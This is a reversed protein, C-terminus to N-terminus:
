RWRGESDREQCGTPVVTPWKSKLAELAKRTITAPSGDGLQIQVRGTPGIAPRPQRAANALQLM